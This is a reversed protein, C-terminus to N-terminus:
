FQLSEANIKLFIVFSLKRTVKKQMIKYDLSISSSLDARKGLDDTYYHLGCRARACARMWRVCGRVIVRSASYRRRTGADRFICVRVHLHPLFYDRVISPKGRKVTSRVFTLGFRTETAALGPRLNGTVGVKRESFDSGNRGRWDACRHREEGWAGAWRTRRM